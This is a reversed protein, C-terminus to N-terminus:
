KASKSPIHVPWISWDWEGDEVLVTLPSVHFQRLWKLVKTRNRTDIYHNTAKEMPIRHGVQLKLAIDALMGKDANREVWLDIFASRFAHPHMKTIGSVQGAHHVVHRVGDDSLDFLSGKSRRINHLYLKLLLGAVSDFSSVRGNGKGESDGKVKRLLVYGSHNSDASLDNLSPTDYFVIDEILLAAVEFRRAGTSVMLAFMAADRFRTVGSLSWFLQKIESTDPYYKLGQEYDPMPCLMSIDQDVAGAKHAWTLVRRILKATKNLMYTSPRAGTSATHEHEYWHFFDRLSSESLEHKHISPFEIWWTQFPSLAFRYNKLAGESITSAKESLFADILSPLLKADVIRETPLKLALQNMDLQRQNLTLKLPTTM